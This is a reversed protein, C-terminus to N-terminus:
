CGTVITVIFLREPLSPVEHAVGEGMIFHPLTGEHALRTCILMVATLEQTTLYHLLHIKM